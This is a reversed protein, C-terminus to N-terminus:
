GVLNLSFLHVIFVIGIFKLIIEVGVDVVELIAEFFLSKEHFLEIFILNSEITGQFSLEGDELAKIYIKRTKKSPHNAQM